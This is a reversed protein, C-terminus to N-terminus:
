REPTPQNGIIASPCAMTGWHVFGVWSERSEASPKDNPNVVHCMISIGHRQQNVPLYGTPLEARRGPQSAEESKIATSVLRECACFPQQETTTQPDFHSGPQHNPVNKMKGYIPFLVGLQSINKLITLVVLWSYIIPYVM